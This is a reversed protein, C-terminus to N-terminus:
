DTIGKERRYTVWTVAQMESVRVGALIAAVKYANQCARQLSKRNGLQTRDAETAERGLCVSLAHRDICPTGHEGGTVIQFFFARVKHGGLVKAPDEGKWIRKAKGLADPFQGTTFRKTRIVKAALELNHKWGMQPSLAAVIGAVKRYDPIGEPTLVGYREALNACIERASRYWLRGAIVDGETARHWIALVNNKYSNM